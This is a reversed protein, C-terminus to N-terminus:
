SVLTKRNATSDPRCRLPAPSSTARQVDALSISPVPFSASTCNVGSIDSSSTVIVFSYGQTGEPVSFSGDQIKVTVSGLGDSITLVIISPIFPGSVVSQPTSITGVTAIKM